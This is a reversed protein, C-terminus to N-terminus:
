GRRRGRSTGPGARSSAGTRRTRCAPPSSRGSGSGSRARGSAAERDREVHRREHAQVGVIRPALALDAAAADGRIGEVVELRQEVPDREAVDRRRHRDATRRDDHEREEERGGLLLSDVPRGEVARELGVDELLVDRLLLPHERRPRVQPQDAVQHREAGLTNGLPVRDADGAVVDALRPRRGRLLEREGQRVPEGVDLEPHLAPRSTSAKAGARENKKLACM